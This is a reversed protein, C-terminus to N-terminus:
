KQQPPELTNALDRGESVLKLQAPTLKAPKFEKIAQSVADVLFQKQAKYTTKGSTDVSTEVNGANFTRVPEEAAPIPSDPQVPKDEQAPTTVPEPTPVTATAPKTATAQEGRAAQLKATELEGLKGAIASVRGGSGYLRDATDLMRRLQIIQAEPPKERQAMFLDFQEPNEPPTGEGRKMKDLIQEAVDKASHEIVGRKVLEDFTARVGPLNFHGRIGEAVSAFFQGRRGAAETAAKDGKTFAAAYKKQEAKALAEIKPLDAESLKVGQLIGERQLSFQGGGLPDKYGALKNLEADSMRQIDEVSTAGPERKVLDDARIQEEPKLPPVIPQNKAQIAERIRQGRLAEESLGQANRAKKLAESKALSQQYLDQLKEVSEKAFVAKLDERHSQNLQGFKDAPISVLEDASKPVEAYNGTKTAAQHAEGTVSGLNKIQNLLVDPKQETEKGPEVPQPQGPPRQEVDHSGAEEVTEPIQGPSRLQGTYGRITEAYSEKPTTTPEGWATNRLKRADERSLEAKPFLKQVDAITKAGANKITQISTEYSEAATGPVVPRNKPFRPDPM